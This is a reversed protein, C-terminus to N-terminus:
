SGSRRVFGLGTMCWCIIGATLQSIFTNCYKLLVRECYGCAACDPRLDKLLGDTSFFCCFAASSPPPNSSTVVSNCSGGSTIPPRGQGTPRVISYLFYSSSSGYRYLVTCFEVYNAKMKFHLKGWGDTELLNYLLSQQFYLSQKKSFYVHCIEDILLQNFIQWKYENLSSIRCKGHLNM